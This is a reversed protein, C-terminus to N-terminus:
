RVERRDRAFSAGTVAHISAFIAPADRLASSTVSPKTQPSTIAHPESSPALLADPPLAEPPAGSPLPPAEPPLPVPPAEAL